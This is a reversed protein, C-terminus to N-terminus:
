YNHPDLWSLHKACTGLDGLAPEKEAEDAPRKWTQVLGQWGGEVNRIGQLPGTQTAVGVNRGWSQRDGLRRVDSRLIRLPRRRETM